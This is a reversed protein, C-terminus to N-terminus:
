REYLEVVDEDELVHQRGVRQGSFKGSEGWVVAYRLKERLEHHIADALDDITSGRPLVFPRTRDAPRGPPKTYVRIVDLADFLARRLAELGQGTASSIAFLPLRDGVELALLEYCEAAGPADYKTGALLAKKRYAGPIRDEQPTQADEEDEDASAQRDPAVPLVRMAALEQQLTEWDSLPDESLDVLLLLVDAQRILARQWGPTEGPVVPPLDVLQVQVNEFPMMGPQPLQTTFPYDAIKPTANTLVALLQSKGANPLGVLAVQGAGERRVTYLQARAAGAQREAQETLAAIRARLEARLHDTGKHKPMVALMTELAEIKEAPSRARRYAKEAEFYQPPLNAPM